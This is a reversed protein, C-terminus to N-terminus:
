NLQGNTSKLNLSLLKEEEGEGEELLIKGSESEKKRNRQESRDDGFSMCVCM